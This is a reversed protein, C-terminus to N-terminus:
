ILGALSEICGIWAPDSEYGSHVRLKPLPRYPILEHEWPDDLEVDGASVRRAQQRLGEALGEPVRRSVLEGDRFAPGGIPDTRRYFNVWYLLDDGERHPGVKEVLRQVLEDTVATPFYPRYFKGLPSGYTVLATSRAVDEPLSAVVAAAIVSGQSHGALIVRGGEGVAERVRAQIEPVARAAYAPPALPHFTRPFFSAVDWVMGIKRRTAESRLGSRVAFYAGVVAGVALWGAMDLLWAWEEPFPRDFWESFSVGASLMGIGGAVGAAFLVTGALTIMVDVARATEVAGNILITRGVIHKMSEPPYGAEGLRGEVEDRWFAFNVAISRLGFLVLAVLVVVL